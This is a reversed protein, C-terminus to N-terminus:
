PAISSRSQHQQVSHVVHDHEFYVSFGAYDWRRIPPKGIAEHRRSPQGYRALVARSSMGRQPLVNAGGAQQGVPITVTEAQVLGFPLLGVLLALMVPKM